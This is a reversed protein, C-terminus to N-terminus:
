ATVAGSEEGRDFLAQVKKLTVPKILIGTFGNLEPHNRAEVDATLLYVPLRSLKADARITRMLERGDMEPMWLDTLVMDFVSDGKLVTLAERGNEAMVVDTAGCELLLAKLVECNISSDDVVLVRTPAHGLHVIREPHKAPPEVSEVKRLKITFTSGVGVESEVTLEGGM